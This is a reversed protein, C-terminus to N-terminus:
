KRYCMRKNLAHDTNKKWYLRGNVKKESFLAQIFIFV